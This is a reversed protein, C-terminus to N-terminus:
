TLRQVLLHERAAFSDGRAAKIDARSLLRINEFRSAGCTESRSLKAAHAESLEEILGRSGLSIAGDAASEVISAIQQESFKLLAGLKDLIAKEEPTQKGDAGVLVAANALLTERDEDTLEGVPVDADLSRPTKAYTRIEAKEADSADFGGLLNELVHSESAQVKGDAWAVAVLAKLIRLDNPTM